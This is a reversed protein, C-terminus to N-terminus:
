KKIAIPLNTSKQAENKAYKTPPNQDERLEYRPETQDILPEVEQTKNKKRSYVHFEGIPKELHSNAKIGENRPSM